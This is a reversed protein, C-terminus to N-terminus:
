LMISTMIMMQSNVSQHINVRFM